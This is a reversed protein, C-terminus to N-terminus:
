HALNIRQRNMEDVEAEEVMDMKWNPNSDHQAALKWFLSTSPYIKPM